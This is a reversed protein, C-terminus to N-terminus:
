YLLYLSQSYLVISKNIFVENAAIEISIIEHGLRIAKNKM